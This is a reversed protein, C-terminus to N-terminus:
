YEYLLSDNYGNFHLVVSNTETQLESINFSYSRTIYALCNENNRLVFRLQRQPPFSEMIAGSDILCLQWSDGNCGGSSLQITLIDGEIGLDNIEFMQGDANSYQFSSILLENNCNLANDDDNKCSVIGLLISILFLHTLIVNRKM